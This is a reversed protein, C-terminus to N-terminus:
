NSEKVNIEGLEFDLYYMQMDKFRKGTNFSAWSQSPYLKEKEIDLAETTFCQFLKQEKLKNLNSKPNETMYDILLSPKIENIELNILKLNNRLIIKRM